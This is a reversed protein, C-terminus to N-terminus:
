ADCREIRYVKAIKRFYGKGKLVTNNERLHLVALPMEGGNAHRVGASDFEWDLVKGDKVCAAHCWDAPAQEPGIVDKGWRDVKKNNQNYYVKNQMGVIAYTGHKLERRLDVRKENQPDIAVKRIRYGAHWVTKDVVRPHWVGKDPDGADM